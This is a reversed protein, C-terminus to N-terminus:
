RTIEFVARCGGDVWIGDRDYGWTDGEWCGSKSLQRKLFVEDRRGINVSCRTYNGNDSNCTISQNSPRNNNSTYNNNNNNYNNNNNSNSGSALVAAIAGVALAGGVIAATNDGSSNSHSYNDRSDYSNGQRNRVSFEARCGQDVWIGNDDYGWTDGKRCETSSLQRVLRVGGRTNVNCFQYRNQPSECTINSEASAPTTQAVLGCTIASILAFKHFNKIM